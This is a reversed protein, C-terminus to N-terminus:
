PGIVTTIPPRERDGVDSPAADRSPGADDHSRRRTLVHAPHERDGRRMADRDRGLASARAHDATRDGGFAGDREIERPEVAHEIDVQLRSGHADLGADEAGIEFSIHILSLM